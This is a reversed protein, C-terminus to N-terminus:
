PQAGPSPLLRAWREFWHIVDIRRMYYIAGADFETSGRLQNSVEQASPHEIALLEQKATEVTERLAASPDPSSKIPWTESTLHVASALARHAEEETRGASYITHKAVWTNSEEDFRFGDPRASPDPSLAQAKAIADLIRTHQYACIQSARFEADAWAELESLADLPVRPAEAHLAAGQLQQIVADLNRQIIPVPVKTLTDRIAKLVAAANEAYLPVSGTGEQLVACIPALEDACQRQVAVVLRDLDDALYAVHGAESKVHALIQALSGEVSLHMDDIDYADNRMKEHLALLARIASPAAPRSVSAEVPQHEFATRGCRACWATEDDRTFGLCETM